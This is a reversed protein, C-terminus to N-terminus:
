GNRNGPLYPAIIRSTGALLIILATVLFADFAKVGVSWLVIWAALGATTALVIGM